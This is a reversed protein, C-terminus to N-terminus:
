IYSVSVFWDSLIQYNSKGQVLKLPEVVTDWECFGKYSFVSNANLCSWMPTHFTQVRHVMNSSVYSVTKAGMFNPM